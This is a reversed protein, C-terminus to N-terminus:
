INFTEDRLIEDATINRRKHLVALVFIAQKKIEYIIRYSYLPIERINEDSLEIVEKGARPLSKSWIVM